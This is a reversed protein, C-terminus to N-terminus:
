VSQSFDRRRKPASLYCGTIGIMASFTMAMGAGFVHWRQILVISLVINSCGAVIGSASALLM